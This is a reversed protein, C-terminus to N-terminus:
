EEEGDFENEAKLKIWGNQLQRQETEALEQRMKAVSEGDLRMAVSITEDLDSMLKHTTEMRQMGQQLNGVIRFFQGLEPIKNAEKTVNFINPKNTTTTTTAGAAEQSGDMQEQISQTQQHFKSKIGAFSISALSDRASAFVTYSDSLQRRLQSIQEEINLQRIPPPPPPPVAPIPETIQQQQETDESLLALLASRLKEDDMKKHISVHYFFTKQKTM